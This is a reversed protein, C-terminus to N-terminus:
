PATMSIAFVETVRIVVKDGVSYKDMDIDQRVAVVKTTDDPFGLTAERNRKDMAVVTAAVQYTEARMAGPKSGLTALGIMTEGSDEITEGPKAMRVVLEETLEVKLRDGVRIQPFNVVEPGAKASFRRGQDTVMSVKRSKSNIATVTANITSTEVYEGGAVGPKTRASSSTEPTISSCSVATIAVLTFLGALISNKQNKM